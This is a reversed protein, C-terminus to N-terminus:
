RNILKYKGNRPSPELRENDYNEFLLSVELEDGSIIIKGKYKYYSIVGLRM